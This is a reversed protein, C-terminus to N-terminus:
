LGVFCSLRCDLTESLLMVIIEIEEKKHNMIVVVAIAGAQSQSENPEDDYEDSVLTM